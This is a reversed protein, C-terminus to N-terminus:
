KNIKPLVACNKSFSGLCQTWFSLSICCSMLVLRSFFLWNTGGPEAWRWCKQSNWNGKIQWRSRAKSSHESRWRADTQAVPRLPHSRLNDNGLQPVKPNQADAEEDTLHPYPSHRTHTHTHMYTYIQTPAYTSACLWVRYLMRFKKKKTFLIDQLDERTLAYFRAGNKLLQM